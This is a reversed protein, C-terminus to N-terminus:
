VILDEAALQRLCGRAEAAPASALDFALRLAEQLEAVGNQGTCLTFLIAATRNLHHVRDRDTQYLICGDEVQHIEVGPAATPRWLPDDIRSPDPM